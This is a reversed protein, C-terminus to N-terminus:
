AESSDTQYNDRPFKNKKFSAYKGWIRMELLFTTKLVDFKRPVAILRYNRSLCAKINLVHATYM